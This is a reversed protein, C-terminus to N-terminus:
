SSLPPATGNIEIAASNRYDRGSTLYSIANALVKPSDSLRGIASNCNFCLMGRVAGTTHDHDVHLYDYGRGEELTGCIACRYDQLRLILDVDASSLDYKAKYRNNRFWKADCAKCYTKRNGAPTQFEARPFTESCSPCVLEARNRSCPRCRTSRKDCLGGCNLCKGAGDRYTYAQETM